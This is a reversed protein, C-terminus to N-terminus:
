GRFFQLVKRYTASVPVLSGDPKVFNGQFKGEIKYKLLFENDSIVSIHTIEHSGNTFSLFQNTVKDRYSIIIEFNRVCNNPNMLFDYWNNFHSIYALNSNYNEFGTETHTYFFVVRTNFNSTDINDGIEYANLHNDTDEICNGTGGIFSTTDEFYFNEGGITIDLFDQNSSFDGLNDDSGCGFFLMVTALFLLKKM